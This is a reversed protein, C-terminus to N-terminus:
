SRVVGNLGVFEVPQVEGFRAQVDARNRPSEGPLLDCIAAIVGAHPLRDHELGLRILEVSARFRQLLVLGRGPDIAAFELVMPLYDPLEGCLDVVLGSERYVQKVDALVEGRRRTDGDTWYSLHLAHRRSLDFEQVHFAQLEGLPRGRLHALVPAFQEVAPTDRLASELVELRDLLEAEPYALVLAAAQLVVPAHAAPRDPALTATRRRGIM